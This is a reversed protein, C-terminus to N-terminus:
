KRIIERIHLKENTYDQKVISFYFLFTNLRLSEIYKRESVLFLLWIQRSEMAELNIYKHELKVTLM